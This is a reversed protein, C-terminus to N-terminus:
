QVLKLLLGLNEHNNDVYVSVGNYASSASAKEGKGDCAVVKVKDVKIIEGVERFEVDNLVFTWVNDCFRYTNLHGKFSIKCKVKNSLAYNIAKDFQLLVQLALQPSIQQTQILEDLSEQLSNGLTTNRYLQYSM